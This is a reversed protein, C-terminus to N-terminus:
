DDHQQHDNGQVHARRQLMMEPVPVVHKASHKWLNRIRFVGPFAARMTRSLRPKRLRLCGPSGCCRTTRIAVGRGMAGNTWSSTSTRPRSGVWLHIQPASVKAMGGTAVPAVRCRVHPIAMKMFPQSLDPCLVLARRNSRCTQMTPPCPRRSSARLGELYRKWRLTAAVDPRTHMSSRRWTAAISRQWALHAPVTGWAMLATVCSARM